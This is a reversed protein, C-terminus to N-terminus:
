ISTHHAVSIKERARTLAAEIVARKRALEAGEANKTLEPLHALKHHAKDLLRQQHEQAERQRRATVFTYRTRAADAQNQSWAAWGTKAGTVAEM